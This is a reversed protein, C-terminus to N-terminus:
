CKRISNVTILTIIAERIDHVRLIDAGNYLTIANAAVTPMIREEDV